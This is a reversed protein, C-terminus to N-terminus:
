SRPQLRDQRVSLTLTFTLSNMGSEGYGGIAPSVLGYAVMRLPM